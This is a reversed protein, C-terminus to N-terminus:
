KENHGFKVPITWTFDFHKGNKHIVTWKPISKVVRIAESDRARDWGRIIGVSDIVGSESVGFIQVYVKAKEFPEDLTTYDLNDQIYNMLLEPNNTYDSESFFSYHNTEKGTLIGNKFSYIDEFEPLMGALLKGKKTTISANYWFAYVEYKKKVNKFIRGLSIDKSNVNVKVLFLSDNRLQWYAVYSKLNYDKDTVDAFLYDPRSDNKFYSELPFEWIELTYEQTILYDPKDEMSFCNQGFVLIAIIIFQLKM